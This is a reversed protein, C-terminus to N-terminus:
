DTSDTADKAKLWTLAANIAAENTRLRHAGGPIIILQKPEKARDYLKRAQSVDILEDKDGHLILIPRPSIRDIWRIPNVELFHDRWEEPSHPFDADRITGAIRCQELLGDLRLTSFEAPCACLILASVRRDHAAVYASAAAGGSFGMLSIKSKDITKVKALYTVIAGLDRTWGLLDLNGGSEGAGRFNFVCAVFGERAFRQALAPYGGDAPGPILSPIGHCLCLAPRPGHMTPPYYIEGVIKLDDVDLIIKGVDMNM